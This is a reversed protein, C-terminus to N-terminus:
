LPRPATNVAAAERRLIRWAGGPGPEWPLESQGHLQLAEWHAAQAQVDVMATSRNALRRLCPVEAQAKQTPRSFGM